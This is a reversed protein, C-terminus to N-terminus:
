ACILLMGVLAPGAGCGFSCTEDAFDILALVFAAQRAVVHRSCAGRTCRGLPQELLSGPGSLDAQKGVVFQRRGLKSPEIFLSREPCLCDGTPSRRRCSKKSGFHTRLEVNRCAFSLECVFVPPLASEV